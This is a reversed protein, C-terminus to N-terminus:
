VCPGAAMYAGGRYCEDCEVSPQMQDRLWEVEARLADRESRAEDRQALAEAAYGRARNTAEIAEHLDHDIRRRVFLRWGRDTQEQVMECERPLCGTEAIFAVLIKERTEHIRDLMEDIKSDLDGLDFSCLPRSKSM